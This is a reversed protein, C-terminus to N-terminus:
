ANLLVSIAYRFDWACRLLKSKMSGKTSSDAKLMQMIMKRIMNLVVAANGIRINAVVIPNKLRCIADAYYFVSIKCPKQM